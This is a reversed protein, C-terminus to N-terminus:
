KSLLDIEKSDSIKVILELFLWNKANREKTARGIIIGKNKTGQIPIRIVATKSRNANTSVSGTQLFCKTIPSGITEIIEKNNIAREFAIQFSESHVLNYRFGTFVVIGLIILIIIHKAKINSLKM